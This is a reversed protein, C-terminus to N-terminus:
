KFAKKLQKELDKITDKVIEDVEAQISESNEEILGAKSVERGCCNCKIVTDDPADIFSVGNDVSYEFLDSGCVKCIMKARYEKM